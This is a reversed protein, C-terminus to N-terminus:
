ELTRSLTVSLSRRGISAEVVIGSRQRITTLQDHLGIRLAQTGAFTLPRAGRV